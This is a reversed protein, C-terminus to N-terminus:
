QKLPEWRRLAELKVEDDRYWNNTQTCRGFCKAVNGTIESIHGQMTITREQLQVTWEVNDGEQWLQFSDNLLDPCTVHFESPDFGQALSCRTGTTFLHYALKYAELEGPVVFVVNRTSPVIMVNHGYELALATSIQKPTQQM